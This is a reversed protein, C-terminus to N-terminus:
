LVKLEADGSDRMQERLSRALFVCGNSASGELTGDLIMFHGKANTEPHPLLYAAATGRAPEDFWAGITWKGVPLNETRGFGCIEDNHELMGSERDISWM